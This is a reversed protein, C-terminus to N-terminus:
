SIAEPKFTPAIFFQAFIDLAGEFADANVYFKYSTHEMGTCGNSGGGHKSLYAKYANEVPYKVSGLFVAHETIHALGTFALPL